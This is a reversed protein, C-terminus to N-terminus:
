TDNKDDIFITQNKKKTKIKGDKAHEEYDIVLYDGAKSPEGTPVLTAFRERLGEIEKQVADDKVEYIYRESAIGKYEGLEVEPMVDFEAKFSFDDKDNLEDMEVISPHSIPQYEEEKVIQNISDRMVTGATEDYINKSFRVELIDRPVKGKRFGPLKANTEFDKLVEERIKQVDKKDVTVEISIKSNPEKNVKKTLQM